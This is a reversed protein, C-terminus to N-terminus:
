EAATVKRAVKRFRQMGSQVKDLVKRTIKKHQKEFRLPTKPLTPKIEGLPKSGAVSDINFDAENWSCSEGSDNHVTVSPLTIIHCPPPVRSPRTWLTLVRMISSATTLIGSTITLECITTTTFSGGPGCLIMRRTMITNQANGLRLIAYMCRAISYEPTFGYRKWEDDAMETFLKMKEEKSILGTLQITPNKEDDSEDDDEEM